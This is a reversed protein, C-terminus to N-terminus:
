LDQEEGNEMEKIQARVAAKEDKIRKIIAKFEPDNILIEFPPYNDLVDQWGWRFGLDAAKSLYNLAKEKEDLM